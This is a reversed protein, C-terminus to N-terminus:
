DYQMRSGTGTVMDYIRIDRIWGEFIKIADIHIQDAQYLDHGAKDKFTVILAVDYTNDVVKRPTRAPWGVHLSRVSKIKRLSKLLTIFEAKQADSVSDHLWLYVAHVFVPKQSMSQESVLSMADTTHLSFVCTVLLLYKM